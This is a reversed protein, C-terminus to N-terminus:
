LKTLEYEPLIFAELDLGDLAGPRGSSLDITERPETLQMEFLPSRALSGNATARHAETKQQQLERVRTGSGHRREVLEEEELMDYAAVVTNRSLALAEALAREAPLRMGAPIDGELIARRMAQALLRYLPGSASSWSGLLNVLVTLDM